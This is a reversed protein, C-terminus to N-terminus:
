PYNFKWGDLTFSVGNPGTATVTILKSDALAINPTAATFATPAVTVQVNYGSLAAIATGEVTKIGTPTQLATNYGDYDSVDDCQTRDQNPAGGCNVGTPPNSFPLLLIEDMMSEAIAIVQKQALPNSSGRVANVYLTAIGTFAVAIIVIFAIIEFLTFGAAPSNRISM